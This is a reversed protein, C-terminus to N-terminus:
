RSTEIPMRIHSYSLDSLIQCTAALLIFLRLFLNLVRDLVRVGLDFRLFTPNHLVVDVRVFFLLNELPDLMIRIRL